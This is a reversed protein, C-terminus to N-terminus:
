YISVSYLCFTQIAGIASNAGKASNTRKAGKAGDTSLKGHQSSNLPLAGLRTEYRAGKLM